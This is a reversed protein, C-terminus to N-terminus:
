YGRRSRRNASKKWRKYLVYGLTVVLVLIVLELPRTYCDSIGISKFYDALREEFPYLKGYACSYGNNTRKAALRRMNARRVYSPFTRQSKAEEPVAQQPVQGQGAMMQQQQEMMELQKKYHPPLSERPVQGLGPVDVLDPVHTAGEAQAGGGGALLSGGHAVDLSVGKDESNGGRLRAGAAQGTGAAEGAAAAMAQARQNAPLQSATPGVEPGKGMGGETDTFFIDNTPQQITVTTFPKQMDRESSTLIRMGTYADNIPANQYPGIQVQGPANTGKRMYRCIIQQNSRNHVQVPYTGSNM